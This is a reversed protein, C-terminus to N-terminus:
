LLPGKIFTFTEISVFYCLHIRSVLVKIIRLIRELAFM